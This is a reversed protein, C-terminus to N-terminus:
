ATAYTSELAMVTVKWTVTSTDTDTSSECSQVIAYDFNRSWLDSVEGFTFEDKSEKLAMWDVEVGDDLVAVTFGITHTPLQSHRWGIPKRTPTIGRIPTSAGGDDSITVDAINHLIQTGKTYYATAANGM